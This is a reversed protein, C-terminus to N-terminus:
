KSNNQINRTMIVIGINKNNTINIVNFINGGVIAESKNKNIRINPSSQEGEVERIFKNGDNFARNFRDSVLSIVLRM